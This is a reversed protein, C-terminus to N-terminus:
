RLTAVAGAFTIPVHRAKIIKQWCERCFEFSGPQEHDEWLAVRDRHCRDCEGVYDAPYQCPNEM